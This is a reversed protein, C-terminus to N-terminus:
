VDALLLLVDAALVARILPLGQEHVGAAIVHLEKWREIVGGENRVEVTGALQQFAFEDFKKLEDLSPTSLVVDFKPILTGILPSASHNSVNCDAARLARSIAASIDHGSQRSM